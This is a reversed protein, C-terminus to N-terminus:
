LFCSGVSEEGEDIVSSAKLKRARKRTAGATDRRSEAYESEDDSGAGEMDRGFDDEEDDRPESKVASASAEDSSARLGLSMTQSVIGADLSARKAPLTVLGNGGFTYSRTPRHHYPRGDQRTFNGGPLDQM